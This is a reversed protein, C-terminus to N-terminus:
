KCYSKIMIATIKCRHNMTNRKDMISLTEIQIIKKTKCKIRILKLLQTENIIRASLTNTISLM